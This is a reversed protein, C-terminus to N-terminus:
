RRLTIYGIKTEKGSNFQIKYYYIGNPLEKGDKDLGQFVRDSNNYNTIELVSTGWRNYITVQNNTTQPIVDIYDFILVDNKGDGNPSLGNYAVIDGAVHMSIQQQTCSGSLDCIQITLEETGAFNVGKYDIILNNNEDISAVAGSSPPTTITLSSFDVNNDADSILDPLPVTVIGEIPAQGVTHEIAPPSNNPDPTGATPCPGQQDTVSVEDSQVSLCSATNGTVVSYDGASTVTIEQTLAGNSWQYISFGFPARLIVSTNTSCLVTSGITQIIPKAPSVFSTITAATSNESECGAASIVKVAYSGSASVTIQRTTDGGSWQYRNFGAPAELITTESGCLTTSGNVQIVPKAPKQEVSLVFPDSVPSTCNGDSVSVTYTEPTVVTIESTTLGNSWAYSNFGSPARLIISSGDCITQPGSLNLSPKPLITVTIKVETRKSECRTSPDYITTFYSRDSSLLATTYSVGTSLATTAAADNYWRYVQSGAGGTANLTTSGEACLDLTSGTAPGISATPPNPQVTLSFPDSAPSTCTGDNVSLGYTGSTTVTISETTSGDSWLYGSFGQPGRLEVAAGECVTLSGTLNLIPKDLIWMTATIQTRDSECLTVPDYVSVYYNRTALLSDTKYSPGSSLINTGTANDFWRYEQAGTAGSATFTVSGTGCRQLSMALPATPPTCDLMTFPAALAISWFGNSDKTRVYLNHAGSPLTSVDIAFSQDVTAAPTFSLATASEIGPDTDIFYEIDTLSSAPLANGPIVYFTRPPFHSWQGLNDKVRIGLRHFGPSLSSIDIAFTNNLTSGASISLPTALGTGPDNDFFYEARVVTASLTPQVLVYFSRTAFHSWRGTNDKSRFNISHFGPTLSNTPVVITQNITGASTVPVNVGNGTGPDTDLFYEAKEITTGSNLVLPPVIYFTRSAFHSWQGRNDIARFNLNHFGPSLSTIPIAVNQNITAAPTVSISVGNGTGPDSDFFYEARTLTSSTVLTAVPVIYFTRSQFHSWKGTNDRIRFNLSHFGNSLSAISANFSFDVTAAPTVAVPTGNGTGPDSDFFYEAQNLTQATSTGYFFFLSVLLWVTAHKGPYSNWKHPFRGNVM